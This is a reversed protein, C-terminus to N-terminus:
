SKENGFIELFADVVRPDFHKGRQERIHKLAKQKSWGKRYPRDSTLADWVDVIAFIRAALPIQEGALGRPYGTGDWKEHHSYPIDLSQRLYKIPQLMEYAFNPHRRMLIWEEETLAGEKLLINDPVGMKGIDHLLAGRRIHLTESDKIGLAKALSLTMETVRRTHNETEKDRLDMARAWGEITADYAIILELNARQLDDFLQTQDITIAAQGALTELFDLWEPNRPLSARHFVELVGKIEGKAILPVAYFELFSEGALLSARTFNSGTEPLNPIHLTHRELAARGAFCEGLRLHTQEIARTHFGQGAIYDLTQLHPHFLLVDVADVDLQAITQSIVTNLIPRLDFSSSIALDVTHLAQLQNLRRATQERLRTSHIVGAAQSAFLSLLHEDAETFKRKSDGIEDATLVGILEGGYLMPVELVAHMITGDYASSRGEWTSYDDVRLPQHTQAVRGAMGESIKLRAGLPIYPTTDVTLELENTEALYLYMGSSSADLLKKAHEVIIQLMVNLENEASLANSTEYLSAFERARRAAEEFLRANQLALSAQGTFARMLEAHENTFFNPEASDLSFLAIVEDNVIIPAGAWSRIPNSELVRVWNPYREVDPIILPQKNELIWRLNELSAFDFSFKSITDILQKELKKYGRIRAINVKQKEPHVLM